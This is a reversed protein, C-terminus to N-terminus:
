ACFPADAHWRTFAPIEGRSLASRAEYWMDAWAAPDHLAQDPHARSRAVFSPFHPRGTPQGAPQYRLDMSIRLRDDSTNDLSGHVLNQGFFLVSGARMPLTVAGDLELLHDPIGTQPEGPCHNYLDRRHSGPVVQMCGNQEDADTVAVWCSLITAADAEPLLVGLDQHWPVKAALYSRSREPGLLRGPPKMRVHQVPNSVLEPGLIEEVADLLREHTLLGFVAPGVHLPTDPEIDKQPLSIDFPQHFSRGTEACLALLREPFPMGAHTAHISGEAVLARAIGDLIEEWEGYIADFDADADFVDEVVVFGQEALQTRSDAPTLTM